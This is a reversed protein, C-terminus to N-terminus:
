ATGDGVAAQTLLSLCGPCLGEALAPPRPETFLGLRVVLDELEVWDDQEMWARRCFACLTLVAGARPLSRDLLAVYPRPTVSVLVGELRVRGAHLPSMILRMDRRLTPSDCRFPLMIITDNSRVTDLLIQYLRRTEDGAVFSWLVHGIVAERTLEPADNERAFTLWAGSVDIIRDTEDIIYGSV